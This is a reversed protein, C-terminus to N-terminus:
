LESAGENIKEASIHFFDEKRYDGRYEALIVKTGDYLHGIFRLKSLKIGEM